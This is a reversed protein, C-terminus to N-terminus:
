WADNKVDVKILKKKSMQVPCLLFINNGYELWKM